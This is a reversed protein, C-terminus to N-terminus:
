AYDHFQHNEIEYNQRKTTSATGPTHGMLFLSKTPEIVLKIRTIKQGLVTEHSCETPTMAVTVPGSPRSLPNALPKM